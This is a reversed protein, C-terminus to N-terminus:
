SSQRKRSEENETVSQRKRRQRKHNKASIVAVRWIESLITFTYKVQAFIMSIQEKKVASLQTNTNKPCHIQNHQQLESRPFQPPPPTLPPPLFLPPSIV